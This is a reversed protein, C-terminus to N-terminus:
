GPRSTPPAKHRLDSRISKCAALNAGTNAGKKAALKPEDARVALTTFAPAALATVVIRM